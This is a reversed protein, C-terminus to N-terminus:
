VMLALPNELAKKLDMLFRAATAGDVVRHDCSLTLRARYGIGLQDGKVVAKKSIAGVALIAAEPPNIIASFEDIGYMGLNSITFTAGTYEEPKLKRLRARETMEQVERAIQGLSKGDCGRIVPTILGDDLAVAVGIDVQRHLRIKGDVYSANMWPHRRLTVAVAKILIDNYTIKVDEAMEKISERLEVVKDMDVEVTLYFHPVPAKSMTMRRAVAQRMLSPEIEQYRAEPVAETTEVAPVPQVEPAEEKRVTAASLAAEVDRKTIRGGPGTGRITSLPVGAEQALRRALPSAKIRETEGPEAPAEPARSPEAPGPREVPQAAGLGLEALVASVDEGAEGIIAIPFGVPVRQGEPVLIKLLVGEEFAELEMNAKDTEVEALIDGVSVAEGERKRWQLIVGEQMTDSLKPMQVPVAM